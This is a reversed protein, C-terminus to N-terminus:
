VRPKATFSVQKILGLDKDGCVRGDISVADILGRQQLEMLFNHFDHEKDKPVGFNHDSLTNPFAKILKQLVNRTRENDM